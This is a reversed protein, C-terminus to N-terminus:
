SGDATWRGQSGDWDQMRWSMARAPRLAYLVDFADDASPLYPADGPAQYKAALAAVVDPRDAPGGLDEVVGHVILVDDGSELHLVVRPDAALNRAKLTSRESYMYLTQDVVVGWVPAAHPGGNRSSVSGLWYNRPTALREAIADWSLVASV